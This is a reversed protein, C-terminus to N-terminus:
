LFTKNNDIESSQDVPGDKLGNEVINEIAECAGLLVANAKELIVIPFSM